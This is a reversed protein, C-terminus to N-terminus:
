RRTSAVGPSTLRVIVATSRRSGHAIRRRSTTFGTAAPRRASVSKRVAFVWGVGVAISFIFWQVAYGLHPGESLEPVDVPEPYPPEEAPRSATLEVYMPVPTGPLQPTLRPIDLRQAETLDGSSTDSLQGRRRVQSPRLRGVIDVDGTPAASAEVGLPVFGREVLLVRGDDLALPTVIMDGAIGDQSRNVVTFQEDPLYRGSAEISRWDLDDPDAGPVLITDLPEPPLDIRSTVQANFAQREDLRRLQWFGLNIMLVIGFIVLLHFGIWRPSYLFRYM